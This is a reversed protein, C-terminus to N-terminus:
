IESRYNLNAKRAQSFQDKRKIRYVRGNKRFFAGTQKFTFSVGAQVCQNHIDLVWDYDCVRAENGSEGGVTVNEVSKNLYSSLNVASLLPECIIMKHIVPLNLFFPLRQDCRLQNEATVCITVNEYGDNWDEPLSVTFREIRKTVILFDLDSRERIMAWADKRWEDASDLFFDSTFCTYVIDKGNLLYTGDKKRRIPLDFDKNKRVEAASKEFRGDTRYVYCNLCGESYKKCGHWPNWLM